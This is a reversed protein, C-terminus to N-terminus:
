AYTGRMGDRLNLSKPFSLSLERSQGIDIMANGSSAQLAEIIDAELEAYGAGTIGSLATSLTSALLGINRKNLSRTLSSRVSICGSHLVGHEDIWCYASQNADCQVDGGPPNPCRCQTKGSAFNSM